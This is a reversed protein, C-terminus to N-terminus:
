GQDTLRRRGDIAARRVVRVQENVSAPMPLVVARDPLVGRAPLAGRPASVVLPVSPHFVALAHLYSHPAVGAPDLEVLVADAQQALECEQGAALPCDGTRRDSACCVVVQMGADRFAAFDSVEAVPDDTEVLLRLHGGHGGRPHPGRHHTADPAM